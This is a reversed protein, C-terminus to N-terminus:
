EAPELTLIDKSEEMPEVTTPKELVEDMPEVAALESSTEIPEDSEAKTVVTVVITCKALLEKLFRLHEQVWVRCQLCDGLITEDSKEKNQLRRYNVEEQSNKYLLFKFHHLSHYTSMQDLTAQGVYFTEAATMEVERITEL